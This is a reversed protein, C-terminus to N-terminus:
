QCPFVSNSPFFFGASGGNQVGCIECAVPKSIIQTEANLPRRNVAQDM